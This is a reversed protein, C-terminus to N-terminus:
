PTEAVKIRIFASRDVSAAQTLTVKIQQTSSGVSTTEVSDILPSNATWSAFDSSAEITYTIDSISDPRTFIYVVRDNEKKVEPMLHRDAFNPNLGLAYEILNVIGDRDADALLGSILPNGLSNPFHTTRWDDILLGAAVSFNDSLLPFIGLPLAQTGVNLSFNARVKGVSEIETAFNLATAPSQSSSYTVVWKQVTDADIRHSDLTLTVAGNDNDYQSSDSILIDSKSIAGDENTDWYLKVDDIATNDSLTGSANFIVSSIYVSDGTAQASLFHVPLNSGITTVTQNTPNSGNTRTLTFSRQNVADNGFESTSGNTAHTATMTINDLLAPPLSTIIWTGGPKVLTEGLFIEGQNGSDNFVQIISGAPVVAIDTIVGTITSDTLTAMIPPPISNNSNNLFIGKGVNSYISNHLISNGTAGVGEIHVGDQGNFAIINPGPINLFAPRAPRGGIRNLTTNGHLFIGHQGNASATGLNDIGIRNGRVNNASGAHIRIGNSTNGIIINATAPKTGISNLVTNLLVIGDPKNRDILNGIVENSTGGTIIIGGSDVANNINGCGKIENHEDTNESGIVSGTSEKLVIGALTLAASSFTLGVKNGRITVNDVADVYIGIPGTAILNSLLISEGIVNGGSTGTVAIGVGTAPLFAVNTPAAITSKSGFGTISNNEYRNRKAKSAIINDTILIGARNANLISNAHASTPGGIVNCSAGNRVIIGIDNEGPSSSDSTGIENHEITNADFLIGDQDVDGGCNDLIIGATSCQNIENEYRFESFPDTSLRIERGLAGITNGQPGNLIHIGVANSATDGIGSFDFKLGIECGFVVNSDTGDGEIMVAAQPSAFISTLFDYEAHGIINSKAGGRIHIGHIGNGTYLFRRNSFYEQAPFSSGISATRVINSDSGIGEILIGSGNNNVLSHQHSFQRAFSLKDNTVDYTKWTHVAGIINNAAGNMLHIGNGTNPLLVPASSTNTFYDYGTWISDVVNHLCGDLLVGDGSNGASNILQLRNNSAGPGITVGPGNNSYVKLLKPNVFISRGYLKGVINSDTNVGTIAIGGKSNGKVLGPAVTNFSAGSEILVGYGNVADESSGTALMIEGSSSTPTYVTNFKVGTGSLRLGDLGPKTITLNPLANVFAISEFFVGHGAAQDVSIFDLLNFHPGGTLHLGHLGPKSINILGVRNNTSNGELHVGSGGGNSITVNSVNNFSGNKIFISHGPINAFNVNEWTIGSVGDLNLGHTGAPLSTGDLTVFTSIGGSTIVSDGPGLKPLATTLTVTKGNFFSTFIISDKSLPGGNSTEDGIVFDTERFITNDDGDVHQEIPRGLSGNAILFAELVSIAGDPTNSMDNKTVSITLGNTLMSDDFTQKEIIFNLTQSENGGLGIKITHSGVALDGPIQIVLRTDTVSLTRTHSQGDIVVSYQRARSSDFNQGIISLVGGAQINKPEVTQISPPGQFVFEGPKGLGSSNGSLTGKDICIYTPNINANTFVTEWGAPVKIVMSNRRSKLVEAKISATIPANDPDSSSQQFQCIRVNLDSPEGFPFNHGQITILDGTIGKNPSVATIVPDFPDGIVVISREVALALPLTLGASREAIQGVASVKGTVDFVKVITKFVGKGFRTVTVEVGEQTGISIAAKLIATLSTHLLDYIARKSISDGSVEYVQIAKGVDIFISFILESLAKHPIFDEADISISAADLAAIIINAGLAFSWKKNIDITNLLTRQHNTSTLPSSTGYWINGSYAQVIYVGPDDKRFQREFSSTSQNFFIDSVASALSELLDLKAADLNARIFGTSVPNFSQLNLEDIHDLENISKFGESFQSARLEFIEVVWDLPNSKDEITRLKYLFKESNMVSMSSHLRVNTAPISKSFDPNIERIYSGSPTIPITGTTASATALAVQAESSQPPPINGMAVILNQLATTVEGDNIYDRNSTVITEILGQLVGIESASEIESLLHEARADDKTSILPSMFALAKATSSADITVQTDKSTVVALFVPDSENRFAWVISPRDLAVTTTFSSDTESVTGFVGSSGVEYGSKNFGTPTTLIGSLVRKVEFPLGTPLSEANETIVIEGSTSGVAITFKISGENTATVVAPTGDVTVTYTNTPVIGDGSLVVESGIPGSTPNLDTFVIAANLGVGTCFLTFFLCTNRLINLLCNKAAYIPRRAKKYNMTPKILGSYFKNIQFKSCNHIIPSPILNESM